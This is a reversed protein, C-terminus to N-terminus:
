SYYPYWSNQRQHYFNLNRSSDPSAVRRTLSFLKQIHLCNLKPGPFPTSNTWLLRSVTQFQQQTLLLKSHITRSKPYTGTMPQTSTWHSALLLCYHPQQLYKKDRSKMTMIIYSGIAITNLSPVSTNEEQSSIIRNLINSKHSRITLGVIVLQRATGYSDLGFAPIYFNSSTIRRQLKAQRNMSQQHQIPSRPM